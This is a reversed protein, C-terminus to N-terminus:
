PVGGVFAGQRWTASRVLQMEREAGAVQCFGLAYWFIPQRIILHFLGFLFLGGALVTLADLGVRYGLRMTSISVWVFAVDALLGGQVFLDLLTNHAEFNPVAGPTPHEINIPQGKSQRATVLETPIALHPGPGLGLLRAEIGRQIAQSWLDFRLEAERETAKGGEKSMQKAWFGAEDTIMPGLPAGLALAIPLALMVMWAFASRFTMRWEPSVMWKRFKLAAYAPAGTVLVLNFTDSQTLWGAYAPLLAGALAVAKGAASSGTEALHFSLLVLAICVLSLQNPTAAWGRLRDWYWPDVGSLEYLGLASALQAAMSLNGFILLLRAVRRLRFAANNGAVCLCSLAALLLYALIDHAFWQPDHEDQLLAGMLTGLCEAVAFLGWFALMRGLPPTLVLDMRVLERVLAVIVWLALSLEGPGLITSGSLRLQSAMSLLLGLAFLADQPM